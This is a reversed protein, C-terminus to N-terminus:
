GAAKGEAGAAAVARQVAGARAEPDLGATGEVYASVGAYTQPGLEPMLEPDEPALRALRIALDVTRTLSEDDLVNTTSSARRRGVIATVTLSVNDVGGSTTISGDAFRTNGSWGSVLTVRTQDATSLKLVRETIARAQERSLVPGRDDAAAPPTTGSQLGGEAAGIGTM